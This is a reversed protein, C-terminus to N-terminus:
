YENILADLAESNLLWKGPNATDMEVLEMAEYYDKDSSDMDIIEDGSVLAVAGTAPDIELLTNDGYVIDDALYDEM